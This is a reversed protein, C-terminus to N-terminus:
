DVFIRYALTAPYAFKAKRFQRPRENQHPYSNAACAAPYTRIFGSLYPSRWSPM